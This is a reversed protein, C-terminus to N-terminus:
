AMDYCRRRIEAVWDNPTREDRLQQWPIPTGFKIVIKKTKARFLEHPLLLMELNARIGLKKRFLALNYFFRSNRGLVYVPVVDRQSAIARKVFTNKWPLDTIRGNIKRSVMGAPFYLMQNAGSFADDMLRAAHKSHSGHKNIPIFIDNLPRVYMLLDNVPFKMEPFREGVASILAIGDLGGLPHNAVFLYRGQQPIKDLGVHSLEGFCERVGARAFEIGPKDAHDRLIRNITEQHIIRKIISFVFRPMWRHLSPNKDAFLNEVDVYKQPESGNTPTLPTM